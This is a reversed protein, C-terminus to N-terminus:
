SKVEAAAIAVVKLKLTTLAPKKRNKTKIYKTGTEERPKFPTFDLNYSDKLCSKNSSAVNIETPIDM